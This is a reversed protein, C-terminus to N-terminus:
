GAKRDTNDGSDIVRRSMGQNVVNTLEGMKAEVRETALKADHTDVAVSTLTASNALVAKSMESVSELHAILAPLIKGDFVWVCYALFLAPFGWNAFTTWTEPPM